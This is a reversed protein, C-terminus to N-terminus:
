FKTSISVWTKKTDTLVDRANYDAYKLGITWEKFPFTDKETKFTRSIQYNWESGYNNATATDHAAHYDHYVVDFVTDDVWSGFGAAKYSVKGYTDELGKAPTSLFKDAWGNFAHLTALPTQFARTGNHSGLSEYAAQLTFGNWKLGPALLYYGVSYDVPNNGYDYQKAGEAEYFFTWDDDLPVDGTFRAGYTALSLTPALAVDHWYGYGVAKLWPAYNYEAHAIDASVRLDGLTNRHGFIRNVRIVHSYILTLDDLSQNQVVVADFTQDNQRWAVSGIFRQNDLNIIQRGAKVTTQPLGTWALWAQNLENTAPDSVTPYTARGNIGSNYLDEGINGVSEAELAAQFDRYMGTKFGFRTHLTSANAKNVVGNQAVHEYRYRMDGYFDGKDVINRVDDSSAQPAPAAPVPKVAAASAPDPIFALLAAGTLLAALVSSKSM